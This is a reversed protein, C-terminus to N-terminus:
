FYKRRVPGELLIKNEFNIKEFPTSIGLDLIRIIKSNKLTVIGELLRSALYINESIPQRCLEEHQLNVIKFM